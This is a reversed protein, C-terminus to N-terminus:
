AKGNSWITLSMSLARLVVNDSGEVSEDEADGEDEGGEGEDDDEDEDDGEEGEGDEEEGEDDEDEAEEHEGVGGRTNTCQEIPIDREGAQTIAYRMYLYRRLKAFAYLTTLVCRGTIEGLPPKTRCSRSYWVSSPVPVPPAPPPDSAPPVSSPPVAASAPDPFPFPTSSLLSFFSPSFSPSSAAEGEAEGGGKSGVRNM